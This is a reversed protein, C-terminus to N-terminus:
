RVIIKELGDLIAQREIEYGSLCLDSPSDKPISVEILNKCRKLLLRLDEDDIDDTLPVSYYYDLSVKCFRAHNKLAEYDPVVEGDEWSTLDEESIGIANALETKDASAKIRARKIKAAVPKYDKHNNLVTWDDQLNGM